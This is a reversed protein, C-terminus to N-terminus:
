KASRGWFADRDDNKLKQGLLGPSLVMSLFPFIGVTGKIVNFASLTNVRLCEMFDEESTTHAPRLVVSGVCNAVGDVRGHLKAAEEM